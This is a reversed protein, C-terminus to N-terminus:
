QMVKKNDKLKAKAEKRLMDKPKQPKDPDTDESTSPIEGETTVRHHGEHRPHITRYNIKDKNRIKM